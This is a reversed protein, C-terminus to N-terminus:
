NTGRLRLYFDFNLDPFLRFLKLEHDYIPNCFESSLTPVAIRINFLKGDTRDVAVSGPGAISEFDSKIAAVVRPDDWDVASNQVSQALPRVEPAKVPPKSALMAILIAQVILM